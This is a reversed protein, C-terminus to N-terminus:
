QWHVLRELVSCSRIFLYSLTKSQEIFPYILLGALGMPADSTTTSQPPIGRLHYHESITTIQPPLERLNYNESTNTRQLPLGKFHYHESTTTRQLPLARLHYYESIITRLLPLERFHYDESTTTSQPPLARLHYHVSTTSRQPQLARLHYDDSTTTRQPPLGIFHYHESTTTRQPPLERFHYDESTSTRLPPLARLHYDESTTTSQPPLGRLCYDESTTTRMQLGARSGRLLSSLPLSKDAGEANGSDIGCYSCEHLRFLVTIFGHSLAYKSTATSLVSHLSYLQLMKGQLGLKLIVSLGCARLTYRNSKMFGRSDSRCIRLVQELCCMSPRLEIESGSSRLAAASQLKDSPFWTLPSDTCRM